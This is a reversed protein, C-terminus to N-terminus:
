SAFDSWRGCTGHLLAARREMAVPQSNMPFPPALSSALLFLREHMADAKCGINSRKDCSRGWLTPRVATSHLYRNGAAGMTTDDLSQSRTIERQSASSPFPVGPLRTEMNADPQPVLSLIWTHAMGPGSLQTQGLKKTAFLLLGTGPSSGLRHRLHPPRINHDAYVNALSTGYACSRSFRTIMVILSVLQELPTAYEIPGSQLSGRVSLRHGLLWLM